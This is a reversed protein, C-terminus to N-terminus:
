AAVEQAVATGGDDDLATPTLLLDDVIEAARLSMNSLLTDGLGHTGENCGQLYVRFLAHGKTSVRYRRSVAPRKADDLSFHPVMPELVAPPNRYVYGTALIVTDAEVMESLGTRTDELVLRTRASDIIRTVSSFNHFKLREKGSVLENYRHGYLKDILPEDVVAYNTDRHEDILKKRFLPASRHLEDVFASDFVGNVFASSDSPKLSYGRFVCTVAADKFRGHLDNVIEAASQGRGIVAFRHNAKVKNAMANIKELYCASHWVNGGQEDTEIPFPVAPAGGIGVVINHALIEREAGTANCRYTVRAVTHPAPGHPEIRMVTCGYQVYRRLQEAVWRMYDNFEVRSPYFTRLNIFDSLRGHTKLYNIFTYTSGPNRQTVLDKLFSIQMVTDDLLMHPHWAFASKQELFLTRLGGGGQREEIAAALALNAPGFGIGVVDYTETAGNNEINM